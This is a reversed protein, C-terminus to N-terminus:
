ECGYGIGLAPLEGALERAQADFAPWTSYDRGSREWAAIKAVTLGTAKRPAAVAQLHERNADREEAALYDVAEALAYPDIEWEAATRLIAVGLITGPDIRRAGTPVYVGYRHDVASVLRSKIAPWHERLRGLTAADIPVGAWEMRAAAAMYRGRLLARPLDIKPLMAPLLKALADVDSQCYDLLVLREAESYPEGRLALNRMGEKEAAGIGDIGHYIMAGLLGRGSPVALGSTLCSFEAYLDLVRAPMPWDLALHCGLEASAYFAVYLSQADIAFPPAPMRALEDAWLRLVAGTRFERAVMCRPEPREGDGAGFEFDVLWVKRYPGLLDAHM